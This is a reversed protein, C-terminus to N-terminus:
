CLPGYGNSCYYSGGFCLNCLASTFCFQMCCDGAEMGHMEYPRQMEQYWNGGSELQAVLQQYQLNNPELLVATKANELAMINNGMGANAVASLYYWGGTRDEMQHLVNDAEKFYGNQIYNAAARLHMQYEESDSERYFQQRSFDQFGSFGRNGQNDGHERQNMIMQYAQQIEKFKEEAKKKDPNNVNADPHYKRSLARYARKIEEDSATSSVELIRYPDTM